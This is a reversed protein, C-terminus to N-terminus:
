DICCITGLCTATVVAACTKSVGRITCAEQTDIIGMRCFCAISAVVKAPVAHRKEPMGYSLVERRGMDITQESPWLGMGELGM